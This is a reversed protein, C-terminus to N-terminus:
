LSIFELTSFVKISTLVIYKARQLSRKNHHEWEQWSCLMKRPAQALAALFAARIRLWRDRGGM